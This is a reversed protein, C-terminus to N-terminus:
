GPWLGRSGGGYSSQGFGRKGCNSAPASSRSSVKYPNKGLVRTKYDQRNSSPTRTVYYPNKGLVRTKYDQSEDRKPPLPVITQPVSTKFRSPVSDPPGGTNIKTCPIKTIGIKPPRSPPLPWETKPIRTPNSSGGRDLPYRPGHCIIRPPRGNWRWSSPRSSISGFSSFSPFSGLWPDSGHRHPRRRHDPSYDDYRIHHNSGCTKYVLYMLFVGGIIAVIAIGTIAGSSLTSSDRPRIAAQASSPKALTSALLPM